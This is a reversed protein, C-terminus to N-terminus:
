VIYPQASQADSLLALFVQKVIHGGVDQAGEGDLPAECMRGPGYM